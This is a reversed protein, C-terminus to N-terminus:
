GEFHQLWVQNSLGPLRSDNHFRVNLLLNDSNPEM